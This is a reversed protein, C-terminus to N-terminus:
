TPNLDGLNRSNLRSVYSCAYLMNSM